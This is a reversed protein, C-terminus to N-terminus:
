AAQLEWGSIQIVRGSSNLVVLCSGNLAPSLKVAPMSEPTKGLLTTSLATSNVMQMRRKM